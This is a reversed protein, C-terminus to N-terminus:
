ASSGGHTTAQIPDQAEDLKGRIPRPATSSSGVRGRDGLLYRLTNVALRWEHPDSMRYVARQRLYRMLRPPSLYYRLYFRRQLKELTQNDVESLNVHQTEYHSLESLDHVHDKYQEYTASGPYPTHFAMQVMDSGVERAFRFTEEMEERTETPHGIMYYTTLGLGVAQADRASQLLQDRTASKRIIKLIRDVGSEIGMKVGCCGARKMLALVERDILDGRTQVTWRIPLNHQLLRRCIEEVRPRDLSFVDDITYFANVRHDKHLRVMDEVVREASHARFKRGYSQRLTASCFTCPFPCGRSTLLFGWRVRGFKPVHTSQMRYRDLFLGTPDMPPLADCDHVEKKTGRRLVTGDSGLVATGDVPREGRCALLEALAAEYEGLLVGTMPSDPYLLDEPQETAHQGLGWVPLDPLKARVSGAINRALAMTPTMTDIFLLDPNLGVIHRVIEDPRRADVHLDLVTAKWGCAHAIGKGYLMSVPWMLDHPHNNQFIM